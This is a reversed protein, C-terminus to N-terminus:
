KVKIVFGALELAAKFNNITEKHGEYVSAYSYKNEGFFFRNGNSMNVNTPVNLRGGMAVFLELLSYNKKRDGKLQYVESIKDRVTNPYPAVAILSLAAEATLAEARINTAIFQILKEDGVRISETLLHAAQVFPMTIPKTLEGLASALKVCDKTLVIVNRGLARRIKSGMVVYTDATIM